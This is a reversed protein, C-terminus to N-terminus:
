NLLKGLTYLYSRGEIIPVNIHLFDGSPQVIQFGYGQSWDTPDGHRWCPQQQGLHGVSWAGIEGDKVNRDSASLLKHVHGFVVCANFRGLMQQAANKGHRTGHTVFCKGARVTGQIRCDDYFKGTSIYRIGRKEIHLVNEAGIQRRLFEADATRRLATTVCFREIRSNGTVSVNGKHRVVFNGTETTLCFVPGTHQVKQVVGKASIDVRHIDNNAAVNIHKRGSDFLEGATVESMETDFHIIRHSPTVQTKWAPSDIRYMPGNYEYRHVEKPIGFCFGGDPNMQQIFDYRTVDSIPKWGVLTHVEHDESVCEHNGSLYTLKAKPCIKQVSDLMVNAAAVDDEFTYETEAVFGWVHHQALFGDCDLHDGMLYVERPNLYALDALMASLADHDVKCGHTDPVFFRVFAGKSTRLKGQVPIKANAHRAQQLAHELRENDAELERLRAKMREEERRTPVDAIERAKRSAM